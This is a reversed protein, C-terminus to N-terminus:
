CFIMGASPTKSFPRSRNSYLVNGTTLFLTEAYDITRGSSLIERVDAKNIALLDAVQQGQPDIVKLQAGAALEFAVGSRPEIKFTM